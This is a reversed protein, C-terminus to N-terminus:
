RQGRGGCWGAHPDAGPPECLRLRMLGQALAGTNASASRPERGESPDPQAEGAEGWDFALQRTNQQLGSM